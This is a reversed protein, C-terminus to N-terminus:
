YIDKRHGLDIVQVLLIDDHVEYIVRYDAIRIRFAERGKLKKCAQPRPNNSLNLLATKIKTYYPKPIKALKKVAKREIRLKYM